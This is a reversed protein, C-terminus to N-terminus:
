ILGMNLARYCKTHTFNLCLSVSFACLVCFFYFNFLKLVDFIKLILFEACETGGGNRQTLFTSRGEVTNM